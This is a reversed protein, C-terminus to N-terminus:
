TWEEAFNAKHLSLTCALQRSKAGHLSLQGVEQTLTRVLVCSARWVHNERCLEITLQCIRSPLTSSGFFSTDLIM